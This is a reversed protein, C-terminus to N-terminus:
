PLRPDGGAAGMPLLLGHTAKDEQGLTCGPGTTSCSGSYTLPSHLVRRRWTRLLPLQNLLAVM